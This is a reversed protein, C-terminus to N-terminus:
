RGRGVEGVSEMRGVHRSSASAAGEQIGGEV